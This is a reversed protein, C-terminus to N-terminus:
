KCLSKLLQITKLIICGNLLIIQLKLIMSILDGSTTKEVNSILDLQYFDNSLFYNYLFNISIMLIYLLKMTGDYFNAKTNKLRKLLFQFCFILLVEEYYAASILLKDKLIPTTINLRSSLLGIGGNLKLNTLM